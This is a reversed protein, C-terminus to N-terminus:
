VVLKLRGMNRGKMLVTYCFLGELNDYGENKDLNFSSFEITYILSNM